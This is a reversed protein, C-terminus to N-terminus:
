RVNKKGKQKTKSVTKKELAKVEPEEAFDEAAPNVEQRPDDEDVLTYGSSVNSAHKTLFKKVTESNVGKRKAIAEIQAPSHLEPMTLAANGFIKKAQQLASGLDNWKRTGKKRVLKRGAIKKGSKALEFAHVRVAEIWVELKDVAALITPLNKIGIMNPAPVSTIGEEDNFDIAAQALAANSIESCGAKGPCFKCWPGANFSSELPDEAKRVAERIVDEYSRLEEISLEWTRITKGKEDPKRPQIIVLEVDVFNYDYQKAAGLAYSILQLNKEVPVFIGAGYKFDIVILRDFEFAISVDLTGFEGPKTFHSTDVKQEPQMVGGGKSREVVYKYADWAHDVMERPFELYLMERTAKAKHSLLLRELCTHADTGENSADSSAGKPFKRSLAVSATCNVYRDASSPGFEAHKKEEAPTVTGDENLVLATGKEIKEARSRLERTIKSM